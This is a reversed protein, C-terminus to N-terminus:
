TEMDKVVVRAADIADSLPDGHWYQGMAARFEDDRFFIAELSAKITDIRAELSQAYKVLATVDSQVGEFVPDIDSLTFPEVNAPLTM